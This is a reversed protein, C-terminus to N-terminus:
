VPPPVRLDSLLALAEDTHDPILLLTCAHEFRAGIRAFGEAAQRLAVTDGSQRAHARLLCAESWNNEAATTAAAKLWHDADPLGAVVALEAGAAHAYPAWWLEAFGAFAQEVLRRSPPGNHVAVRADAFAAAASLAPVAATGGARALELARQQWTGFSGDRRLGHAMAALALSSSMWELAPSGAREWRAWLRDADTICDDFRGTLGSLRIL